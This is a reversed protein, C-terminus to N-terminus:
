LKHALKHHPGNAADQDFLPRIVKRIVENGLGRSDSLDNKSKVNKRIPEYLRKMPAAFDIKRESKLQAYAEEIEQRWTPRGVRTRVAAPNLKNTEPEDESGTPVVSATQGGGENSTRAAGLRIARDLNDKRVFVKGEDARGTRLMEVADEAGWRHRHLSHLDGTDADLTATEIEGSYGLSRLWNWVVEFRRRAAHEAANAVLEPHRAPFPIPPGKSADAQRTGPPALISAPRRVDLDWKARLREELATSSVLAYRSLCENGTWENEFEARGLLKFADAILVWGPPAFEISELPNM